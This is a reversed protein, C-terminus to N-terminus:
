FLLPILNLAYAPRFIIIFNSTPQMDHKLPMAMLIIISNVVGRLEIVFHFYIM